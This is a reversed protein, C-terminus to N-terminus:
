YSPQTVSKEIQELLIQMRHKMIPQGKKTRQNLKKLKQLKKSKYEDLVESKKGREKLFEQKTKTIKQKLNEYQQHHKLYQKRKKSNTKMSQNEDLNYNEETHKDDEESITEVSLKPPLVDKVQTHYDRLIAKKKKEESQLLKYKLSYRQLRWKKKDFLKKNINYNENVSDATKNGSSNTIKKYFLEKFNNNPLNQTKRYNNRRNEVVKKENRQNLDIKNGQLCNHLNQNMNLAVTHM